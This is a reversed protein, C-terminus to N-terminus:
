YGFIGVEKCTRETGQLDEETENNSDRVGNITVDKMKVNVQSLTSAPNGVAVSM